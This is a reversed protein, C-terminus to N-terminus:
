NEQESNCLNVSEFVCGKNEIGQLVEKFTNCPGGFPVMMYGLSSAVKFWFYKNFVQWEKM